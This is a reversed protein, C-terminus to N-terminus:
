LFEFSDFLKPLDKTFQTFTYDSEDAWNPDDKAEEDCLTPSIIMIMKQNHEFLIHQNGCYLAGKGTFVFFKKNNVNYVKELMGDSGAKIYARTKSGLPRFGYWQQKQSDFFTPDDFGAFNYEFKDVEGSKIDYEEFQKWDKRPYVFSFGLKKNTYVAATDFETEESGTTDSDNNNQSTADSPKSATNKAQWVYWGVFGVVGLILVILIAEVLGFGKQNEKM